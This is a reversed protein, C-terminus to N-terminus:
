SEVEIHRVGSRRELRVRFVYRSPTGHKDVWEALYLGSPLKYVTAADRIAREVDGDFISTARVIVDTGPSVFGHATHHIHILPKYASPVNM